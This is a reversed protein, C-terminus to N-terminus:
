VALDQSAEARSEALAKTHAGQYLHGNDNASHHEDSEARSEAVKAAHGKSKLLADEAKERERVHARHEARTEIEHDGVGSKELLADLKRDTSESQKDIENLKDRTNLQNFVMMTGGFAVGLAAATKIIIDRKAYNSFMRFRQWSGVTHGKIGRSHIGFMKEAYEDLANDHTVKIRHSQKIYDDTQRQYSKGGIAEKIKDACKSFFNDKATVYDMAEDATARSTRHEQNIPKRASMFAEHTPEGPGVADGFLKMRAEILDDNQKKLQENKFTNLISFGQKFEADGHFKTRALNIFTTAGSITGVVAAGVWQLPSGYRNYRDIQAETKQKAM